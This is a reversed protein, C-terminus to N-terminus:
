EDRLKNQQIQIERLITHISKLQIQVETRPVFYKANNQFTHHIKKNDVHNNIKEQWQAWYWVLSLLLIFNSVTIFATINSKVKQKEHQTM